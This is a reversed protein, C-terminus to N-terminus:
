FSLKSVQSPRYFFKDSISSNFHVDSIIYEELLKGNSRYIKNSHSITIPGERKYDSWFIEEPQENSELSSYHEIKRILNNHPNVYFVWRDSGTKADFTVDLMLAKEGNLTTTGAFKPQVGPDTLKFPLSFRYLAMECKCLPVCQDEHCMFEFKKAEAHADVIHNDETAWYGDGDRSVVVNAGDDTVSKIMLEHGSSTNKFFYTEYEKKIVTGKENYLLHTRVFNGDHITNWADKGGSAKIMGTVLQSGTPPKMFQVWFYGGAIVLLILVAAVQAIRVRRLVIPKVLDKVELDANWSLGENEKPDNQDNTNTKM